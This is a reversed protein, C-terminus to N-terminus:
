TAAPITFVSLLKNTLLRVLIRFFDTLPLARQSHTRIGGVNNGPELMPKRGTLVLFMETPDVSYGSGALLDMLDLSADDERTMTLSFIQFICRKKSFKIRTYKKRKQYFEAM